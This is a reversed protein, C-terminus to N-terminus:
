FVQGRPLAESTRFCPWGTAADISAPRRGREVFIRLGRTDPVPVEALPEYHQDLYASILGLARRFDSEEELALIFFPVSQRSMRDLARQQDRPDRYFNPRFAMQGGAFGRDALVFVDPSLGTMVLRDSPTTCRDVFAFFPGLALSNRSPVHDGEPRAKVLRRGLNDVRDAFAGRRGVLGAREVETSLNGVSGALVALAAFTSASLVMRLRRGAASSTRTWTCLWALLVSAPAVADPVRAVLPMRLFGFNAVTAMLAIAIVAGSERPWTERGTWVRRLATAVAVLPLAHFLYFLLVSSNERSVFSGGPDLEPLGRLLTAEAESRSFYLATRFYEALGLYHQVFVAWPLLMLGVLLALGGGASAAARVGSRWRGAVVAALAGVGIYLGHDHRFLFACVTLAALGALRTTSPRRCFEVFAWAAGAYLVIKPYGFSRPNILIELATAAIAVIVSGSLRSAVVATFAAALGFVVAVLLVEVLLAKGFLWRALAPLADMFPWGPDVFDRVPWEGLLMQQAGALYIYHDNNFGAFTLLRWLVTLVGLAIAATM